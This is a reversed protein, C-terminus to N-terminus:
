VVGWKAILFDEIKGMDTANVAASYILVEAISGIWVGDSGNLLLAISKNALAGSAASAVQTKNKRVVLSTDASKILTRLQWAGSVYSHPTESAAMGGIRNAGSAAGSQIGCKDAADSATGIWDAAADTQLMVVGFISVNNTGGVAVVTNLSLTAGGNFSLYADAYHRGNQTGTSVIPATDPDVQSASFTASGDKSNILTIAADGNSNLSTTYNGADSFDFWRILGSVQTPSFPPAGGRVGLVSLDGPGIGLGIRM